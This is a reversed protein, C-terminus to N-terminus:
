WVKPHRFFKQKKVLGNFTLGQIGGPSRSPNHYITEGMPTMTMGADDGADFPLSVIITKHPIYKWLIRGYLAPVFVIALIVLLVLGIILKKHGKM